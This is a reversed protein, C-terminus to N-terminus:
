NLINQADSSRLATIADCTNFDRDRWGTWKQLEADAYMEPGLHSVDQQARRKLEESIRAAEKTTVELEIFSQAITVKIREYVKKLGDEDSWEMENM